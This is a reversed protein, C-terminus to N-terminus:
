GRSPRDSLVVGRPATTATRKMQCSTAWPKGASEPVSVKLAAPRQYRPRTCPDPVSRPSATLVVISMVISESRSRGSVMAHPACPHRYADADDARAEGTAYLQRAQLQHGTD